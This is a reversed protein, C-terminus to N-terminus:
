VIIDYRKRKSFGSIKRYGAKKVMTIAMNFKYGVEDPSHSDSGLTIPINYNHLIDIIKQSPYIENVPKRLGSTNIEVTINKKSMIKAINEITKSIDGKPRHGFKKILDFHGIINFNNSILGEIIKFYENYVEDIDRNNFEDLFDPHDFAWDDIFHCSGILYDIRNDNLYKKKFGTGAKFPYDVEFGIKIAIKDKYLAKKEEILNIYGEIEEPRMTIGERLDAPLPAHDSFGIEIFNSNIARMIYEDPTGSAHECLYTHIHYDVLNM